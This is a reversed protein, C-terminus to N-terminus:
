KAGGRKARLGEVFRDLNKCENYRFNGERSEIAMDVEALQRETLALQNEINIHIVDMAVGTDYSLLKSLDHLARKNARIM